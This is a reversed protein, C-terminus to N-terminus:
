YRKMKPDINCAWADIGGVLNILRAFGQSEMTICARQSRMGHHCILVYERQSDLEEIAEPINRLPINIAGNISCVETEFDERVDILIPKDESRKILELVQQPSLQRM